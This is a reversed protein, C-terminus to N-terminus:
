KGSQRTTRRHLVIINKHTCGDLGQAGNQVRETHDVPLVHEDVLFSGGFGDEVEPESESAQQKM